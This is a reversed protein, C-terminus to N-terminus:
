FRFYIFPNYSGSAVSLLCVFAVMIVAARTAVGTVLQKASLEHIDIRPLKSPSSPVAALFAAVVLTVAVSRGLYQEIPTELSNGAGFGGLAKLMTVAHALTDARFIIWGFMVALLLYVHRFPRWLLGLITDLGAREAVLLVGWYVGWLLFTWNAGHWLGCLVFVAVLNFYTRCGGKRNGGLPIYLYDRFWSSLSMHWRRWFDTASQAVYPRNFNPPLTFGMMHGLGIAMNSYGCFDFYIQATYCVVGLWATAATLQDPPLAFIQDAPVALPNAILIKQGLGVAFILIGYSLREADISRAKLEDALQSYRVIPGAVLQPFMAKYTAFTLWSTQAEVEERYVDILYSMGQFSFFSIGLPLLIKLEPVSSIEFFSLAVNVQAAVFGLYKFYLLGALNGCLGVALIARRNTSAHEILLGFFYNWFIYFVLLPLYAPGGWAYFVLSFLLIVANSKGSAYYSVLFAPLFVSLFIISSFVL